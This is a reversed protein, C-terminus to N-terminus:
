TESIALHAGIWHGAKPVTDATLDSAIPSFLQRILSQDSFSAEGGLVLTPGSFPQARLTSNFYAADQAITPNSFYEFGSRLYGPKSISDTYLTLLDNSFASPGAYSAHYFYWSLMQRERGQIFFQAADPVSFFALQWNSYLNWTPTPTQFTEYGLGPLVYESLGLRKIRGRIKAALALAVGTGKDHAFVYTQNISLIDLIAKLDDAAASATFNYGFPISSDGTGRL